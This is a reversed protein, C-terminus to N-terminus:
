WPKENTYEQIKVAVIEDLNKAFLEVFKKYENVKAKSISVQTGHAIKNRLQIYDTIRRKITSNSAKQWCISELIEYLGIGAFIKEIVDAHPNVGRPIANKAIKEIDSVKDKLVINAAEFQLDEVFGQLHASLLVIAARNLASVEAPRGNRPQNVLNRIIEAIQSFEVGPKQFIKEARHIRTLATHALLLQKVDKM